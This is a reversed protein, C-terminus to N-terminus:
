FDSAVLVFLDWFAKKASFSKTMLDLEYKLAMTKIGCLRRRADPEYSPVRESQFTDRWPASSEWGLIVSLM